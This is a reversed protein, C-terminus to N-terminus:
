YNSQLPVLLGTKLFRCLSYLINLMFPQINKVEQIYLTTMGGANSKSSNELVHCMNAQFIPGFIPQCHMNYM